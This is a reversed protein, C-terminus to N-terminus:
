TRNSRTSFIPFLSFLLGCYKWIQAHLSSAFLITLARTLFPLRMQTDPENSSSVNVFRSPIVVSLLSFIRNSLQPNIGAWAELSRGREASCVEGSGGAGGLADSISPSLSGNGTYCGADFLFQITNKLPLFC